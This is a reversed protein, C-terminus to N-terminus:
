QLDAYNLALLEGDRRVFMAPVSASNGSLKTLGDADRNLTVRRAKVWDRDINRREAWARVDSDTAESDTIYVDIGALDDARSLVTTLVADCAPCDLGTFLVVRDTSRLHRNEPPVSSRVTVDILAQGALLRRIAADYDRQFALIREADDRMARAWLEAYRRREAADRAHIGLVEIPSLTAPSVSGRIGQMLAQYRRWEIATLQWANAQSRETATLPVQAENSTRRETDATETTSVTQANVTPLWCALGLMLLGVPLATDQTRRLRDIIM